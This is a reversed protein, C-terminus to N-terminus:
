YVIASSRRQGYRPTVTKKTAKETQGPRDALRGQGQLCIPRKSCGAERFRKEQLNKAPEKKKAKGYNEMWWSGKQGAPGQGVPRGM